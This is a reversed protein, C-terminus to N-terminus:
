CQYLRRLDKMAQVVEFFTHPNVGKDECVSLANEVTVEQVDWWNLRQPYKFTNDRPTICFLDPGDRYVLYSYHTMDGPESDVYYVEGPVKEEISRKM